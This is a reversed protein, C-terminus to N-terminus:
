SSIERGADRDAFAAIGLELGLQEVSEAPGHAIAQHHDVQHQRHKEGAQQLRHSDQKRKRQRDCARDEREEDGVQRDGSGTTM